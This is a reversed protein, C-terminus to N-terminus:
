KKPSPLNKENHLRILEEIKDIVERLPINNERAIKQCDEYEPKSKLVRGNDFAQKVRVVGWPTQLNFSKRDLVTKTVEYQRLGLTTTEELVFRIIQEVLHPKSLISLMTGPRTKKMIISALFVDEAGMEFLKTIIYDYHEPNMDDINCEIMVSIEHSNKEDQEGLYLRLVNPVKDTDRFGIGYAIKQIIFDTKSTFEKVVTALIAAGTPTTAEHNVGGIRVPIGTLIDATAPAPVPFIGHQCNVMGSGLEPPAALIFDPKFYDLCIAAGVIDVISDVAGVEHFHVKDLALGHIKGEARAIREFIAISLDKVQSNLSSNLILNKIVTFNRHSAYNHTGVMVSTNLGKEAEKIVVDVLTGEIGKRKAKKIELRYENLGLKSLENKLYEAPVGLDLMAGLHM